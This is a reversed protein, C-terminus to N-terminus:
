HVVGENNRFRLKAHDRCEVLAGDVVRCAACAPEQHPEPLRIALPSPNQGPPDGKSPTRPKARKTTKGVKIGHRALQRNLWRRSVTRGGQLIRWASLQRAAESRGQQLWDPLLELEEPDLDPEPPRGGRGSANESV